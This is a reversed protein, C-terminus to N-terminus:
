MAKEVLFITMGSILAETELIIDLVEVILIYDKFGILGGHGVYV